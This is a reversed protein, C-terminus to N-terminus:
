NRKQREKEICSNKREHRKRRKEEKENGEEAEKAKDFAGGLRDWLPHRAPPDISPSKQEEVQHALGTCDRQEALKLHPLKFLGQPGLGRVCARPEFGNALAEGPAEFSRELNRM